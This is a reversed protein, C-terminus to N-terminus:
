AGVMRQGERRRVEKVEEFGSVTSVFDMINHISIICLLFFCLFSIYLYIIFLYIFGNFWNFNDHCLARKNKTIM